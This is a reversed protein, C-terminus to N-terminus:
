RGKDLEKGSDDGVFGLRHPEYSRRRPDRLRADGVLTEHFFDRVMQVNSIRREMERRGGEPGGGNSCQDFGSGVRVGLIPTSCDGQM